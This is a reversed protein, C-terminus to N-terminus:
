KKVEYGQQEILRYAWKRFEIRNESNQEERPDWLADVVHNGSCDNFEIKVMHGDKDYIDVPIATKDSM